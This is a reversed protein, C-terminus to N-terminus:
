KSGSLKIRLGIEDFPYVQGDYQLKQTITKRLGTTKGGVLLDFCGHSMTPAVSLSFVTKKTTYNTEGGYVGGEYTWHQMPLDHLVPRIQEGEIVYLSLVDDSGGESLNPQVNASVRLGFARVNKALFYRATDFALSGENVLTVADEEISGKYSSFVNLSELNVIALYLPLQHGTVAPYNPPAYALAVLMKSSDDPWLKCSAARVSGEPGIQWSAKLSAVIKDDCVQGAVAHSLWPALM